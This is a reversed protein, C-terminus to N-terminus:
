IHILSLLLGLMGELLADSFDIGLVTTRVVNAVGLSPMALDLLMVVFSALLSVVLIGIASPLRLFLYNIAGFAGALVILLSTIQLFTM